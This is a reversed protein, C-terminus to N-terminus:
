RINQMKWMGYVFGMLLRHEAYVIRLLKFLFTYVKFLERMDRWFIKSYITTKTSKGNEIKSWRHDNWKELSIMVVLQSKKNVLCSLNLFTTAFRTIGLQVLERRNTFTGM